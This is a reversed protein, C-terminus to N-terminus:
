MPIVVTDGASIGELIQVERENKLGIKVPKLEPKGTLNPLLVNPNGEIYTIASHPLLVAKEVKEFEIAVQAQFGERIREDAPTSIQVPYKKIGASTGAANSPVRGISIIKGTLKTGPIEVFELSTELGERIRPIFDEEVLVELALAAPNKVTAILQGSRVRRDQPLTPLVVIGSFPARIVAEELQSKLEEFKEYERKYNIELKALDNKEKLYALEVEELDKKAIIGKSFLLKKRKLDNEKALQQAKKDEIDIAMKKVSAEADLFKKETDTIDVTVIVEDKKVASYNDKAYADLKIDKEARLDIKEASEIKGKWTSMILLSGHRAKVESFISNEQMKEDKTCGIFILVSIFITYLFKGMNIM